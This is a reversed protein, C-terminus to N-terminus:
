PKLLWELASKRDNFISFLFGRNACVTELFDFFEKHEPKVVEAIKIGPIVGIENFEKSRRFMQVPRGSVSSINSHDILAKTVRNKPMFTSIEKAMDLSGDKDAIGRTVIEAYQKEENLTIKWEM